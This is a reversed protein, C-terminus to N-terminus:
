ISWITSDKNSQMIEDETFHSFLYNNMIIYDLSSQNECSQYDWCNILKIIDSKSYKIDQFTNIIKCKSKKTKENYRFNVSGINIAMLKNALEQIDIYDKSVHKIYIAITSFHLDTLIFASM